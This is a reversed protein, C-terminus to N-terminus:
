PRVRKLRQRAIQEDFGMPVRPVVLLFASLRYWEPAPAPGPVWRWGPQPLHRALSAPSNSNRPRRAERELM